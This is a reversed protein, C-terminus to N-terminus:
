LVHGLRELSKPVLFLSLDSSPFYSCFLTIEDDRLSTIERAVTFHMESRM